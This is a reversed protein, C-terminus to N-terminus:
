RKRARRPLRMRASGDGASGEAALPTPFLARIAADANLLDPDADSIHITGVVSRIASGDAHTSSRAASVLSDLVSSISRAGRLRVQGRLWVLNDEALTVSIAEKTM